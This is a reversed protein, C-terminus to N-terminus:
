GNGNGEPGPPLPQWHTIWSPLFGRDLEDGLTWCLKGEPWGPWWQLWGIEPCKCGPCSVLVKVGEEPLREGIPVWRREDRLRNNEAELSEVKQLLTSISRREEVLEELRTAVELLCANACGDGSQIDRALIRLASILKADPTRRDAM